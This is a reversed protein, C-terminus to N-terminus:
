GHEGRLRGGFTVILDTISRLNRIYYALKGSVLFHRQTALSVVAALGAALGEWIEPTAIISVDVGLAADADALPAGITINLVEIGANTANVTIWADRGDEAFQKVGLALPRTLTCRPLIVGLLEAAAARIEIETRIVPV